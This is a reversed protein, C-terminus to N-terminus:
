NPAVVIATINSGDSNGPIEAVKEFMVNIWTPNIEYLGSPLVRGHAEAYSFFFGKSGFPKDLDFISYYLDFTHNM